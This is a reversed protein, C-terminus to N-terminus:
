SWQDRVQQAYCERQHRGRRSKDTLSKTVIANDFLDTRSSRSYNVASVFCASISVWGRELVGILASTKTEDSLRHLIPEAIGRLGMDRGEQHVADILCSLPRNPQRVNLGTIHRLQIGGSFSKQLLQEMSPSITFSFTSCSSTVHGCTATRGTAAM